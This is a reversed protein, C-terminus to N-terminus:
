RVCVSVAAIAPILFIRVTAISAGMWSATGVNQAVSVLHLISVPSQRVLHSYVDLPAM